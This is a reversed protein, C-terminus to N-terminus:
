EKKEMMAEFLPVSGKYNGLFLIRSNIMIASISYKEDIIMKDFHGFSAMKNLPAVYKCAPIYDLAPIYPHHYSNMNLNYELCLESYEKQGQENLVQATDILTIIQFGPYLGEVPKNFKNFFVDCNIRIDHYTKKINEKPCFILACNQVTFMTDNIHSYAIDSAGLVLDNSDKSQKIENIQKSIKNQHMNEQKWNEKNYIINRPMLCWSGNMDRYYVEINKVNVCSQWSRFGYTGDKLFPFEGELPKEKFILLGIFFTANFVLITLFSTFQGNNFKDFFKDSKATEEKKFLTIILFYIGPFLFSVIVAFKLADTIALYQINYYIFSNLAFLPILYFAFHLWNLKKLWIVFLQILNKFQNLVPKTQAKINKM